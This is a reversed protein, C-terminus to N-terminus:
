PERLAPTRGQRFQIALPEYAGLVEKLGESLFKGTMTAGSIGDVFNARQAAPVMEEARGKAVNVSVFRGGGDVIKKGEFNQRFWGSEIEGGLGPTEQHQYVSFGRVTTGDNAVALYGHIPGWLGRSIFPVAYATVSGQSTQVYLPLDESVRTAESHLEGTPGVWLNKINATYLTQVEEAEVPRADNVLGLAKLINKQRDVMQNRQQYPKLGTNAATLLLSCVVCLALAFLLSTLNKSQAM